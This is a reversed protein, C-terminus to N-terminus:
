REGGTAPDSPDNITPKRVPTALQVEAKCVLESGLRVGPSVTERVISQTVEESPISTTITVSDALDLTFPQGDHYVLEAGVRTLVQEYRDRITVLLDVQEKLGAQELVAAYQTLFIRLQHHARAQDIVIARFREGEDVRVRSIEAQLKRKEAAQTHMFHWVDRQLQIQQESRLPRETETIRTREITM